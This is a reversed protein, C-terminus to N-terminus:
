SNENMIKDLDEGMKICEDINDLLDACKMDANKIEDFISDCETEESVGQSTIFISNKEQDAHNSQKDKIIIEQSKLKEKISDFDINKKLSKPEIKFNKYYELKEAPNGGPEPPITNNNKDKIKLYNIIDENTKLKGKLNNLRINQRTKIVDMILDDIEGMMKKPRNCNDIESVKAGLAKNCNYDDFDNRTEFLINNNNDENLYDKLTYDDNYDRIPGGHKMNLLLKVGPKFKENSSTSNTSGVSQEM